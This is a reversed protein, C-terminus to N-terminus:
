WLGLQFQCKLTNFSITTMVPIQFLMVNQHANLPSYKLLIPKGWSNINPIIDPFNIDITFKEGSNSLIDFKTEPIYCNSAIRTMNQQRKHCCVFM